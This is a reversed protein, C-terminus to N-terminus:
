VPRALSRATCKGGGSINITAGDGGPTAPPIQLLDANLLM